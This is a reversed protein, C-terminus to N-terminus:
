LTEGHFRGSPISGQPITIGPGKLVAILTAIEGLSLDAPDKGFYVQSGAAVGYAGKGFYVVNLYFELIEDKTFTKEIQVATMFERIKRTISDFINRDAHGLYLNRSLQQTITSAGEKLRFAFVNKVMAKMFRVLDVGWHSYFDKDETALLANVV